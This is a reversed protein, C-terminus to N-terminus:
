SGVDASGQEEPQDVADRAGEDGDEADVDVVHEEGRTAARAGAHVEVLRELAAKAADLEGVLERQAVCANGDAAVEATVHRSEHVWTRKSGREPLTESGREAPTHLAGLVRAGRSPDMGWSETDIQRRRDTALPDTRGHALQRGATQCGSTAYARIGIAGKTLCRPSRRGEVGGVGRQEMGVGGVLEVWGRWRGVGGWREGMKWEMGGNVREVAVV